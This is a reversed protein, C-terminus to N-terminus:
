KQFFVPKQTTMMSLSISTQSEDDPQFTIIRSFILLCGAKLMMWCYGRQGHDSEVNWFMPLGRSEKGVKGSATHWNRNMLYRQLIAVEERADARGAVIVFVFHFAARVANSRKGADHGRWACSATMEVEGSYYVSACCQRCVLAFGCRLLM